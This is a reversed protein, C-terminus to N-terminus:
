KRVSQPLSPSISGKLTLPQRPRLRATPTVDTQLDPSAGVTETLLLGPALFLIFGLAMILLYIHRAKRPNQKQSTHLTMM